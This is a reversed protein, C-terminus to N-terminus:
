PLNRLYICSKCTMIVGPPNQIFTHIFTYTGQEYTCMHVTPIDCVCNTVKYKTSIFYEKLLLKIQFAFLSM